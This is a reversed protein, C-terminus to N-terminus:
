QMVHHQRAVKPRGLDAESQSRPRKLAASGVLGQRADKPLACAAQLDGKNQITPHRCAPKGGLRATKTRLLVSARHWTSVPCRHAAREAVAPQIMNLNTIETVYCSM